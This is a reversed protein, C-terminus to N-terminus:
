KGVKKKTVKRKKTPAILGFPISSGTGNRERIVACKKTDAIWWPFTQKEEPTLISEEISSSNDEEGPKGCVDHLRIVTYGICREVAETVTMECKKAAQKIQSYSNESIAISKKDPRKNM